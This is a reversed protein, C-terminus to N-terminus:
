KVKSWKKTPVFNTNEPIKRTTYNTIVLQASKAKVIVCFFGRFADRVERTDNITMMWHCCGHKDLKHLVDALGALDFVAQQRFVGYVNKAANFQYPPDLFVFCSRPTTELTEVLQGLM